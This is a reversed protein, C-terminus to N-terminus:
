AGYELQHIPGPVKMFLGSILPFTRPVALLILLVATCVRLSSLTPLAPSRCSGIM